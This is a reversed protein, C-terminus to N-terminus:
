ASLERLAEHYGTFDRGQGIENILTWRVVGERDLLFTGRLAAGAQENLVGFSEAVAGHPWFDSLLPFFYGEKDAWARQSFMHDTSIALVQVDDSVFAGLNDRIECLEGTCIGSFAFPYFVVVVNKAGKFSSLTVDQGNQDKLTFDPAVDGVSLPTTM